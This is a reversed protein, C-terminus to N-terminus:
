LLDLDPNLNALGIEELPIDFLPAQSQMLSAIEYYAMLRGSEFADGKKDLTEQKVEIARERILSGLDLLYNAYKSQDM